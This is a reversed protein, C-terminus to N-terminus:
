LIKNKRLRNVQSKRLWEDFKAPYGKFSVLSTNRKTKIVKNLRLGTEKARQLENEYFGGTLEEGKLDELQYTVPDTFLVKRIQFVEESWNPTYGKEFHGKQKSIRVKAGTNYKPPQDTQRTAIRINKGHAAESPTQSIVRHKTTNYSHLLRPLVDVYKYTGTETFHKWMRSKLTRNFREIVVAKGENNTSYIDIDNEGRWVTMPSNYFEKGRDVWLKKPIRDSTNVIRRFADRVEIGTKRKLPIVWAYRSYLDIVTLLFKYNQNQRAYAQMDVLDASWIEDVGTSRVSRRRFHIRRPRHLEKALQHWDTPKRGSVLRDLEREWESEAM